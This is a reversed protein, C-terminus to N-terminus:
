KHVYSLEMVVGDNPNLSVSESVAPEKPLGYDKTMNRQRAKRVEKQLGASQGSRNKALDEAIANLDPIPQVSGIM